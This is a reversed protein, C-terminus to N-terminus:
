ARFLNRMHSYGPLWSQTALRLLLCALLVLLAVQPLKRFPSEGGEAGKLLAVLIVPRIDDCAAVIWVQEHPSMM